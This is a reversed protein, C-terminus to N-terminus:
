TNIYHRLLASSLITRPLFQNYALMGTPIKNIISQGLTDWALIKYSKTYYELNM